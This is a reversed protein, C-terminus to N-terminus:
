LKGGKSAEEIAKIFKPREKMLAPTVFPQAGMFRTGLELFYAHETGPKVQAEFGASKITLTVSRKTEGTAYGKTFKANRKTLKELESGHKKVANKIKPVSQASQRLRKALEIAGRVRM